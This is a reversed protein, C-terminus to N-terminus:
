NKKELISQISEVDVFPINPITQWRKKKHICDEGFSTPYYSDIFSIKSKVKEPILQFSQPPLVCLLQVIPEVPVGIDYKFDVKNRSMFHSIDSLVPAHHHPYFWTWSPLGQTYYYYTWVITKLYNYIVLNLDNRNEFRKLNFFHEYYRDKWGQKGLKVYDEPPPWILEYQTLEVELASAGPKINLKPINKKHYAQLRFGEEISLRTIFQYFIHFCIHNNDDIIGHKNENVVLSYIKIIEDIGGEHIFLCPCKPVFDNGLLFCCIVFDKVLITQSLEVSLNQKMETILKEKLVCIDMYWFPKKGRVDGFQDRERM